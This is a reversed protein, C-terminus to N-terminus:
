QIIQFFPSSATLYLAAKAKDEPTSQLDVARRISSMMGAPMTGGLLELNVLDVVSASDGAAAQDVFRKLDLKVEGGFYGYILRAAYNVRRLSTESTLIQFEPGVMGLGPIRYSPSFYSFVSAPFFIKQGMLDAEGTLFPHDAITAGIARTLTSVVLAPEKLHGASATPPNLAEEDTLIAYLVAKMDGRVGSGNDEFATVVREVYKASPNSTVLQQILQKSLFPGINPHWYVTGIVSQLDDYASQGAQATAGLFTKEGQDHNAEVAAMLDKYYPPNHGPKSAVGDRRNSTPAKAYTWGTFVRALSKVDAETYAPISSGSADLQPTGDRNLMVLGITFLQLFERAYNENPSRGSVLDAKDNDVMNLYEGMAPHLTIQALVVYINEFANQHLLRLYGVMADSSNVDVASVVLIKHLALATRQRLQDPRGMANQFFYDQSWEIARETLYDPYESPTVAFQESFWADYGVTKLHAAGTQNAGFTSHNLFRYAATTDISDFSAACTLSPVMSALLLNTLILFRSFEAQM